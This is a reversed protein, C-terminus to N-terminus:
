PLASLAYLVSCKAGCLRTGFPASGGKPFGRLLCTSHVWGPAYRRKNDAARKVTQTYNRTFQGLTFYYDEQQLLGVTEKIVIYHQSGSMQKDAVVVEGGMAYYSHEVRYNHYCLGAGILVLVLIGALLLKKRLKM